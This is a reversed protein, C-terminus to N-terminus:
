PWSVQLGVMRTFGDDVPNTEYLYTYAQTLFENKLSFVPSIVRRYLDSYGPQNFEEIRDIAVIVRDIDAPAFAWLEGIVQDSGATMAPYDVRSFLQGNVWAPAVSLPEAPWCHQRCQGM